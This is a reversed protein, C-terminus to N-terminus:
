MIIRAIVVCSRRNSVCPGPLDLFVADARGAMGAPFGEETHLSRTSFTQAICVPGARCMVCACCFYIVLGRALHRWLEGMTNRQTVTVNETLGLMAFDDRARQAREAHFEDVCCRHNLRDDAVLM